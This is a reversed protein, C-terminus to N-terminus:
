INALQQSLGHMQLRLSIALEGEKTAGGAPQRLLRLRLRHEGGRWAPSASHDPRSSLESFM